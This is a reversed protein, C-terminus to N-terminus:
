VLKAPNYLRIANTQSPETLRRSSLTCLTEGDVYLLYQPSELFYGPWQILTAALSTSMM